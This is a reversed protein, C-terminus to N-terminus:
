RWAKRSPESSNLGTRMNAPRKKRNLRSGSSSPEMARAFRKKRSFPYVIGGKLRRTQPSTGPSHSPSCGYVVAPRRPKVFPYEKAHGGWWFRAVTQLMHLQQVHRIVLRQHSLDLQTQTSHRSEDDALQSSTRCIM